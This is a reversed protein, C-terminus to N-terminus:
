SRDPEHFAPKPLEVPLRHAAGTVTSPIGYVVSASVSAISGTSSPATLNHGVAAAPPNQAGLPAFLLGCCVLCTTLRRAGCKCM